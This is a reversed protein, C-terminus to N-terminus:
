KLARIGKPICFGEDDVCTSSDKLSGDKVQDLIDKPYVHSNFLVFDRNFEISNKLKDVNDQQLKKEAQKFNLHDSSSNEQPYYQPVTGQREIMLGKYTAIPQYKLASSDYFAPNFTKNMSVPISQSDFGKNFKKLDFDRDDNHCRLDRAVDIDKYETPRERTMEKEFEEFDLSDHVFLQKRTEKSTFDIKHFSDRPVLTQQTSKQKMNNTIYEYCKKLFAIEFEKEPRLLDIKKKLSKKVESKGSDKTVGLVKYPNINCGNFFELDSNM